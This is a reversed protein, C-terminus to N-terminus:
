QPTETDVDAEVDWHIIEFSKFDSAFLLVAEVRKVARNMLLGRKEDRSAKDYEERDVLMRAYRGQCVVRFCRSSFGLGADPVVSDAPVGRVEAVSRALAGVEKFPRKPILQAVQETSIGLYAALVEPAATNADLYGVANAHDVVSYTTLTSALDAEDYVDQPILGRTVLEDLELFWRKNASGSNRPVAAVVERATDGSVGMLKELVSAPAHNINVKDSESHVTFTAEALRRALTEEALIGADGESIRTYTPFDVDHPSGYVLQATEPHLLSQQLRAAATEVGAIALQRARKKRLEFSSDALELEMYRLYFMGLASFIALMSIALLLAAGRRRGTLRSGVHATDFRMTWSHRKLHM